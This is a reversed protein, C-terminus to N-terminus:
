GNHLAELYGTSHVTIAYPLSGSPQVETHEGQDRQAKTEEDTSLPVSAEEYTISSSILSLISRLCEHTVCVSLSIATLM